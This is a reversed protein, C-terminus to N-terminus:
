RSPGVAGAQGTIWRALAQDLADLIASRCKELSPATVHLEIPGHFAAQWTGGGGLSYDVRDRFAVFTDYLMIVPGLGLTRGDQRHRSSPLMTSRTHCGVLIPSRTSSSRDRSRARRIGACCGRERVTMPAPEDAASAVVAMLEGQLSRHNRQARARLREVVDEPVNKISLNVAM